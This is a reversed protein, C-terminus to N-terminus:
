ADVKGERLVTCPMEAIIKESDEQRANGMGVLVMASRAARSSAM